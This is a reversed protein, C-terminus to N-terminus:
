KLSKTFDRGVTPINAEDLLKLFPDDKRRERPTMGHRRVELRLYEVVQLGPVADRSVRIDGFQQFRHHRPVFLSPLLKRQEGVELAAEVGEILQM